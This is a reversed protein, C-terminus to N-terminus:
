QSYQKLVQSVGQALTELATEASTNSLVARVANGLYGNMQANLGNDFTDSAFFSSVADKAQVVFPYVLPNNKLSEALEVRAYPQGFLRTKSAESFLKQATEKKALFKLFLLAEKQHKSKVSIGDAWYSAITMERGPLHPVPVVEFSLQPALAKISFVDWSYGFYMALNGKAFAFLSPDLTEDWVKGEDKAFSTYFDLTDIASRSTEQLNKIDAGNQAFLLSVIDPAHAINDFTGMAAGATKIRGNEDVVTLTRAARSFDQWNAPVSVGAQRFIESNVFLSFTDIGLTIGYIAGNKTLDGLVVPYYVKQFEDKTIVDNPLPLLMSSMQLLWTNHFRFVDPGTGSQMRVAIRERYQKVDQKAYMVKITPNQKEFDSIVSRMTNEGEWLGWYSLTVTENESKVFIPLVFRFVIFVFASIFLLGLMAKFIRGIPRGNTLPPKGWMPTTEPPNSPPTPAVAAHNQPQTQPVQEPTAQVQTNQPQQPAAAHAPQQAKPSQFLTEENM